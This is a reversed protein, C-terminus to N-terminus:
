TSAVSAGRSLQSCRCGMSPTSPKSRRARSLCLEAMRPMTAMATVGLRKAPGQDLLLLDSLNDVLTTLWVGDVPEIPVREVVDEDVPRPALRLVTESTPLAEDCM